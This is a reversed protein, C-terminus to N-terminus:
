ALAIRQKRLEARLLAIAQTVSTASTISQSFSRAADFAEIEAETIDKPNDDLCRALAAIDDISNGISKTLGELRWKLQRMYFWDVPSWSRNERIATALTKSLDIGRDNLARDFESLANDAENIRAVAQTKVSTLLAEIETNPRQRYREAVKAVADAAKATATAASLLELVGYM